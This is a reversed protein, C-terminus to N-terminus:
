KYPIFVPGDLERLYEERNAAIHAEKEEVTYSPEPNEAYVDASHIYALLRIPAFNATQPEDTAKNYRALRGADEFGYGILKENYGGILDLVSRHQYTAAGIGGHWRAMETDLGIGDFTFDLGSKFSEPMASYTMGFVFCQEAWYEAWGRMVPWCDDDFLFIHECEDLQQLCQNRAWAVGRRDHDTVVVFKCDDPLLYDKIPRKGITIVGVGFKM